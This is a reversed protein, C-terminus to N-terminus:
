SHAATGAVFEDLLCSITAGANRYHVSSSLHHRARTNTVERSERRGEVHGHQLRRSVTTKNFCRTKDRPSHHQHYLLQERPSPLGRYRATALYRVCSSSSCRRLVFPPWLPESTLPTPWCTSFTCIWSAWRTCLQWPARGLGPLCTM